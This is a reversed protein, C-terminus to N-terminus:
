TITYSIPVSSATTVGDADVFDVRISRVGVDGAGTVWAGTWSIHPVKIYSGSFLIFDYIDIPAMLAKANGDVVISPKGGIRSVDCTVTVTAGHAASGGNAPAAVAVTLAPRNLTASERFFRAALTEGAENRANVTGCTPDLGCQICGARNMHGSDAGFYTASWTTGVAQYWDAVYIRGPYSAQLSAIEASLLPYLSVLNAQIAGNQNPILGKSVAVFFHSDQAIGANMAATFYIHFTSVITAPAALANNDGGGMYCLWFRSSPVGANAAIDVLAQTGIQSITQGSNWSSQCLRQAGTTGGIGGSEPGGRPFVSAGNTGWLEALINRMGASTYIDQVEGMISDGPEIARMGNAGTTLAGNRQWTDFLLHVNAATLATPCEAFKTQYGSYGEFPVSSVSAGFSFRDVAASLPGGTQLGLVTVVETTQDFSREYFTLVGASCVLAWMTDDYHAASVTASLDAQTIGGVTKRFVYSNGVIRLWMRESPDGDSRLCSWIPQEGFKDIRSEGCVSWSGVDSRLHAAAQNASMYRYPSGDNQYFIGNNGRVANQYIKPATASPVLGFLGAGTLASVPAGIAGAVSDVYLGASWTSVPLVSLQMQAYYYPFLEIETPMINMGLTTKLQIRLAVMAASQNFDALAYHLWGNIDSDADGSSASFRHPIGLQTALGDLVAFEQATIAAM